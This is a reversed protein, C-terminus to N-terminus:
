RPWTHSGIVIISQAIVYGETEVMYAIAWLIMGHSPYQHLWRSKNPNSEREPQMKARNIARESSEIRSSKAKEQVLSVDCQILSVQHNMGKWGFVRYQQGSLPGAM